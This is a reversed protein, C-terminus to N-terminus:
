SSELPRPQTDGRPSDELRCSELRAAVEDGVTDSALLEDLLGRFDALASSSEAARVRTVAHSVDRRQALLHNFHEDCAPIPSPYGQIEEHIRERTQELVSRVQDM